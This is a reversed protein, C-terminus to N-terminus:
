EGRGKRLELFTSLRNLGDLQMGKGTESLHYWPLVENRRLDGLGPIDDWEIDIKVRMGKPFVGNRQSYAILRASVFDIMQYGITDIGDRSFTTTDDGVYDPGKELQLVFTDPMDKGMATRFFEDRSTDGWEGEKPYGEERGHGESTGGEVAQRFFEDEHLGM